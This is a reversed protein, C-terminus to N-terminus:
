PAAGVIRTAASRSALHGLVLAGDALRGQEVLNIATAELVVFENGVDPHVQWYDLVEAAAALGDPGPAYVQATLVQGILNPVGHLRGLEMARGFAERATVGQQDAMAVIGRNYAVQGRAVPNGTAAAWREAREIEIM